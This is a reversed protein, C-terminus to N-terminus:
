YYTQIEKLTEYSISHLVYGVVSIEVGSGTNVVEIDNLNTAINALDDTGIAVRLQRETLKTNILNMTKNKQQKIDDFYLM